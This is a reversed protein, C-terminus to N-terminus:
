KGKSILSLLTIVEQILKNKTAALSCKWGRSKKYENIKRISEKQNDVSEKSRKVGTLSKRIKEIRQAETEPNKIRNKFSNIRKNITEQSQKRNKSTQSLKKRTEDSIPGKNLNALRLKEKVEPTMPRYVSNYKALAERTTTPMTKGTRSKSMKKKSLESHKFGGSGGTLLNYGKLPNNSDLQSIWHQEKKNLEDISNATDIVEITFAKKGYKQIANRLHNCNSRKCCHGHWRDKLKVTTQGIYVKGNIRNTIKYIIM